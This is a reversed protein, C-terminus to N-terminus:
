LIDIYTNYKELCEADVAEIQAELEKRQKGNFLGKLNKLQEM